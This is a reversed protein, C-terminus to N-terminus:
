TGRTVPQSDPEDLAGHLDRLHHTDNLSVVTPWRSFEVLSISAVNVRLRRFHALDLGLVRCLIMLNTFNHAVVAVRGTPQAARIDEIAAWAREQVEGLTEGGPMRVQAPDALWTKLWEGYRERVRQIPEGEFIGQNMERLRSDTQVPLGHSTAVATATEVARSLDSAYVATLPEGALAQGLARAQRRGLESLPVDAVGQPRQDRNWATEGHRILLLREM